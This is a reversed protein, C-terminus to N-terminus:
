IQFSRILIRTEGSAPPPHFGTNYFSSFHNQIAELNLARFTIAPLLQFVNFETLENATFYKGVTKFFSVHNKQCSNEQKGCMPEQSCCSKNKCCDKKGAKMENCCSSIGIACVASCYMSEVMVTLLLLAIGKSIFRIPRLSHHWFYWITDPICTM